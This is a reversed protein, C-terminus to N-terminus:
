IDSEFMTAFPLDRNETHYKLVTLNMLNSRAYNDSGLLIFLLTIRKLYRLAKSRGGDMKINILYDHVQLLFFIPLPQCNINIM